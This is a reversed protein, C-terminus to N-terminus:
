RRDNRIDQKRMKDLLESRVTHATQVTDFRSLLKTKIYKNSDLAVARDYVYEPVKPPTSKKHQIIKNQTNTKQRASRVATAKNQPQSGSNKSPAAPTATVLVATPEAPAVDVPAAIEKREPAIAAPEATPTQEEIRPLIETNEAQSKCPKKTRPPRAKKATAAASDRAAFDISAAEDSLADVWNDFNLTSQRVQNYDDVYDAYTPKTSTHARTRKSRRTKRKPEGIFNPMTLQEYFPVEFESGYITIVKPEVAAPPIAEKCSKERNVLIYNISLWVACIAFLVSPVIILTVLIPISGSGCLSIVIGVSILVLFLVSLAIILSIWFKRAEVENTM